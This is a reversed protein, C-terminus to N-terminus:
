TASLYDEYSYKLRKIEINHVSICEFLSEDFVAINKGGTAMTSVFEVGAYGKSKILETIFQTPLYELPLDNRRLPKAIEKAIDGFVRINAALSELGSSYLAPSISSLGSINVVNIDKKLRMTGVSIYDFANARVENLATEEDSTLYLVGIGEPNVRGAKRKELPPAGMEHTNYGLGSNWIRARYLETGRRYKTISYALFSIFQDAHFYRNYFRNETKIATSFESWSHGSFIGYREDYEKPIRVKRNCDKKTDGTITVVLANVLSSASPLSENFVHWEHILVDFLFRGTVDDEYISVLESILDSLDTQVDTQYIFTNKQGCFDCDGKQKNEMIITRIQPDRFCEVCCNM